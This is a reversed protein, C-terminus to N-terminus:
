LMGSGAKVYIFKTDDWAPAAGADMGGRQRALAWADAISIALSLTPPRRSEPRRALIRPRGPSLVLVPRRWAMVPVMRCADAVFHRRSHPTCPARDLIPREPHARNRFAGM